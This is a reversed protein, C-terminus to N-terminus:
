KIIVKHVGIGSIFIFYVGPNNPYISIELSNYSQSVINFKVQEGLITYINVKQLLDIKNDHIEVRFRGFNPNPFVECYVDELITRNNSIANNNCAHVYESLIYDPNDFVIEGFQNNSYCVAVGGHPADANQYLLDYPLLYFEKSGFFSFISDQILPFGAGLDFQIVQGLYSEGNYNYSFNDLIDVKFSRNLVFRQDHWYYSDGVNLSFDYLTDFEFSDISYLVLDDVNQIYLDSITYLITDSLDYRIGIGGRNYKQTNVGEILTDKEYLISAQGFYSVGIQDYRWESNYGGFVQSTLNTLSILPITIVLLFAVRIKM